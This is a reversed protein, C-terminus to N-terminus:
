SRGNPRGASFETYEADVIDNRDRALRTARYRELERLAANRRSEALAILRSILDIERINKKFAEAASHKAVAPPM